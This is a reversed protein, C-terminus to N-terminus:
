RFISHTYHLGRVIERPISSIIRYSSSSLSLSLPDSHFLDEFVRFLPLEFSVGAPIMFM